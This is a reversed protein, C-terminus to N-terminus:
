ATAKRPRGAKRPAAPPADATEGDVVADATETPAAKAGVPSAYGNGILDQAEDAPLDVTQGVEPWPEGNRTGSIFVEMQVRM